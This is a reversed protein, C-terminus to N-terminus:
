RDGAIEGLGVGEDEDVGDKGLRPVAGVDGVVLM